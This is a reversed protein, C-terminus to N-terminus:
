KGRNSSFPDLVAVGFKEFDRTNRTVVTLSYIRATAAILADEFLSRNRRGVLKAWERAIAGDVDVVEWLRAIRDIWRDLEAAKAPDQKRTVEAGGQLEGLVIAPIGIAEAPTADIWTLVAGHPRSKRLESVVNSDLLFKVV